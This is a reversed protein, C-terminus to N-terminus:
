KVQLQGVLASKIGDHEDWSVLQEGMWMLSSHGTSRQAASRSFFIGM